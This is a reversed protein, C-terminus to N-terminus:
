IYHSATVNNRGKRKATYLADDAKKILDNILIKDTPVITSVGLTITVYDLIPSYEHRIKADVVALRMTESIALAESDDTQPLIAIFEDGGYRTLFCNNERISSLIRAVEKICNDGEPHGYNDNYEKFFDIDIIILTLPFGREKSSNWEKNLVEFFKRRNPLGTVPDTEAHLKNEEAKIRLDIGDSIQKTRIKAQEKDHYLYLRYYKLASMADEVKEFIAIFHRCIIISKEHLNNEMSLVYAVSLAEIACEIQKLQVLFQNYFILIDIKYNYAMKKDAIEIAKLFYEDARETNRLKWYILAYVRYGECILLENNYKELLELGISALELAKHYDANLYHIEAYNIYTVGRGRLDTDPDVDLSLQYYELAKTYEQLIKYIEGINNYSVSLRDNFNHKKAIRASQNYYDFATDYNALEYFVNGLVSYASCIHYDMNYLTLLSIAKIIYEIAKTYDSMNSFINGIKLLLIAEAEPYDAKQSLELTKLAVNLAEQSDIYKLKEVNAIMDDIQKESVVISM